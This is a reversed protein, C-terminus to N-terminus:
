WPMAIREGVLSHKKAETIRVRMIRGVLDDGTDANVNVIRGAPDRGKWSTTGADQIRSLGEVLVDTEVGELMKLCKRTISNQLTQLRMLRDAAVDPEVKPEM